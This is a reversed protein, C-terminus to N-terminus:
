SNSQETFVTSDTVTKLGHGTFIQIPASQEASYEICENDIIRFLYVSGNDKEKCRIGDATYEYEGRAIYSSLVGLTLIFTMDDNLLLQCSSLIDDKYNYEYIVTNKKDIYEKFSGVTSSGNYIETPDASKRDTITYEVTLSGADGNRMFEQTFTYKGEEAAKKPLAYTYTTKDPSDDTKIHRVSNEDSIFAYSASGDSNSTSKSITYRGLKTDNPESKDKWQLAFSIELKGNDDDFGVFDLTASSCKFDTKEITLTDTPKLIPTSKRNTLFSVAVVCLVMAVALVIWLAPKKYNLIHKIRSKAGVEGFALPCIKTTDHQTSFKLLTRSYDKRGDFSLSDIVKEDCASELDRSFLIYAVICLPNFWYVSLLLWALPKFIHDCRKIHTKEHALIFQKEDEEIDSPLYIKPAFVGLIFPSVVADCRRINGEGKISMRVIRKLRLFSILAFILMFILGALWIYHTADSFSFMGKVHQQTIDAASAASPQLSPSVVGSEDSVATLASGINRESPMLSISSEISFPLILRIAALSWLLCIASKPAKQFILRLLIIAIIIISASISMILLKNFIESLFATM